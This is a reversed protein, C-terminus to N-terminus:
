RKPRFRRLDLQLPNPDARRIVVECMGQSPPAPGIAGGGTPGVWPCAALRPPGVEKADCPAAHRWTADSPMMRHWEAGNRAGLLAHARMTGCRSLDDEGM